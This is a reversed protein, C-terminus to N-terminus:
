VCVCCGPTQLVLLGNHRRLMGALVCVDGDDLELTSLDWETTTRVDLEYRRMCAM